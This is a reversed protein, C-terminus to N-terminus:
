GKEIRAKRTAYERQDIVGGKLLLDLKRLEREPDGKNALEHGMRSDERARVRDYIWKAEDPALEPVDILEGMVQIHLTTRTDRKEAEVRDMARWNAAVWAAQTTEVSGRLFLVLRTSLAIALLYAPRKLSHLFDGNFSGRAVRSIVHGLGVVSSYRNSDLTKKGQRFPLLRDQQYCVFVKLVEEGDLIEQIMERTDERLANLIPFKDPFPGEWYGRAEAAELKGNLEKALQTAVKMGRYDITKVEPRVFLDGINEEQDQAAQAFDADFAKLAMKAHIKIEFDDDEVAERLFFYSELCVDRKADEIMRRKGGTDMSRFRALRERAGEASARGERQTQERLAAAEAEDTTSETPEFEAFQDAGGGVPDGREGQLAVAWPQGEEAAMSLYGRAKLRLDEENDELLVEILPGVRADGIEALAYFASKRMLTVPSDIMARLAPVIDVGPADKLAVVANGRARNNPDDLMRALHPAASSLDAMALAEIANARVRDVGDDLFPLLEDVVEPGGLRGLEIVMKARVLGDGERRAADLLAPVRDAARTEAIETVAALREQPDEAYLPDNQPIVFSMKSQEDTFFGEISHDEPDDDVEVEGAADAKLKRLAQQADADGGEALQEIGRRAKERVSPEVDKLADLLMPLAGEGGVLGLAYAASDRMWLKKSQLMKELLALCNVKGYHRLAKIANARIRNDEDPLMKVVLPYAKPTGLFELAEITNARVRPDADDLFAKVYGLEAEAGLIGVAMVLNSRVEPSEGAADHELLTPLVQTLKRGTLGKLLKIKQADQGVELIKKLKGAVGDAPPDAAPSASAESAGMQKRLFFLGKKALYRVAVSEDTDIVRQLVEAARIDKSRVLAQVAREREGELPSKLAKLISDLSPM